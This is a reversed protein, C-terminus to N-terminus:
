IDKFKRKHCFLPKAESTDSHRIDVESATDTMVAPCHIASDKDLEEEKIYDSLLM